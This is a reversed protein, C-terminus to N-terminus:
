DPPTEGRLVAAFKPMDINGGSLILGVRKGRMRRREQLLAALAAAGAGEAITHACRFYIRMAEAIEDDTVTVIRDVGHRIVHLADPNPIRVAMGDAFTSATETAVPRGAELSLAYANAGAAAVGVVRTKLGLLDRAAIVGCIGSGMGIPVYVADLAGAAHFLEHAYTSVGVVLEPGFSAIFDLGRETAIEAAALRAADFDHGVEVLEAGLARMAANKEASNGLPVVVTVPIGVRAAAFPISQGHNGRTATIVGATQGRQKRRQLHVIGGRVKFAGTPTHNEHKVWAECGTEQALLPWAYQPTPPMAAYVMRQADELEQATYM